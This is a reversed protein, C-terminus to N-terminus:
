QHLPPGSPEESRRTKNKLPFSLLVFLAMFGLVIVAIFVDM